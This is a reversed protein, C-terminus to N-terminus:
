KELKTATSEMQGHLWLRLWPPAMDGIKPNDLLLAKNSNALIAKVTNVLRFLRYKVILAYNIVTSLPIIKKRSSL